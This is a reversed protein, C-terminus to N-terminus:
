HRAADRRRRDACRTVDRCIGLVSVIQGAADKEPILSVEHVRAGGTEDRITQRVFPLAEGTAVVRAIAAAVHDHLEKIRTGILGAAPRCLTREHTPNIYLYNGLCDWRAINDPLNEALSRFERESAAVADRIGLHRAADAAITEAFAASIARLRESLAQLRAGNGNQQDSPEGISQLEIAVAYITKAGGLLPENKQEIDFIM